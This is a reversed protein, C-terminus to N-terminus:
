VKSSSELAGLMGVWARVRILIGFHHANSRLSVNRTPSERFTSSDSSQPNPNLETQCAEFVVYQYCPSLNRMMRCSLVLDSKPSSRLVQLAPRMPSIPMASVNRTTRM